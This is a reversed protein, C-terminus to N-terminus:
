KFDHVIFFQLFIYHTHSLPLTLFHSFVSNSNVMWFYFLGTSSASVRLILLLIKIQHMKQISYYYGNSHSELISYM